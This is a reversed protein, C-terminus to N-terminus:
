GVLLWHVWSPVENPPLKGYTLYLWIYFALYCLGLTVVVVCGIVYIKNEKTM